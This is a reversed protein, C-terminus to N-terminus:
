NPKWPQRGAISGCKSLVKVSLAIWVFINTQEFASILYAPKALQERFTGELKRWVFTPDKRKVANYIIPDAILIETLRFALTSGIVILGLCIAFQVYKKHDFYRPIIVYAILYFYCIHIPMFMAAIGITLWYDPMRGRLDRDPGDPRDALVPYATFNKNPGSLEPDPCSLRM